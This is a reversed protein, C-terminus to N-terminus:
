LRGGGCVALKQIKLLTPTEGRQGPTKKREEWNNYRNLENGQRITNELLEQVHQFLTTVSSM